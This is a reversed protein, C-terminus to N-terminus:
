TRYEPGWLVKLDPCEMFDVCEKLEREYDM